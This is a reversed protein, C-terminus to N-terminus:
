SAASKTLFNTQIKELLGKLESDTTLPNSLTVRLWLNGELMTQVIYYEGDLLIFNRIRENLTNLETISMEYPKFRFCVINTEPTILLEFNSNSQIFKCFNQANQHVQDISDSFIQTGFTQMIAYVKISMMSKTCEFTRRALNFWEKQYNDKWLYQAKQAFTRYSHDGNKYILATILAPTMLMKHFDMAISDAKEIGNLLHKYQDSFILPGGHAADVHFWLNNKHAFHGLANLDDFSGTSTSCASGILAIVHIGKEQARQFANELETPKIKFQDDSPVKIIGDEGWGMMRAARDVCYHAQESVLLGLKQTHGSQWVDTPALIARATLLATFNALTGGSTLFGDAESPYGIKQALHTIIQKELTTSVTGMEYVGMGNNLFDSVLGALTAVPLPPSIQHGMYKPNHLHVSNEIITKFFEFPELNQPSVSWDKLREEPDKWVNAKETGNKLYDALYDILQHGLERFSESDYGKKLLESM